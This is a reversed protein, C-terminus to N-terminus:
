GNASLAGAALLISALTLLLRGLRSLSLHCL